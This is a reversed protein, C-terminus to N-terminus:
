TEDLLQEVFPIVDGEYTFEEGAPDENDFRKRLNGERDYVYVAPPAALELKEILVVDSPETGLINDFTAGQERLFQLVEDRYTEPPRSARGSYDLSYSICAVADGFQRHLEVLHPFERRCPVCSTSWLDLVVIQGKKSEILQETEEWTMMALAVDAASSHAAGTQEDAPQAQPEPAEFPPESQGAPAPGLDDEAAPGPQPVEAPDSGGQPTQQQCGLGSWCLCALMLWTACNSRM